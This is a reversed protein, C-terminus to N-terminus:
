FLFNLLQSKGTYGNHGAHRRCKSTGLLLNDLDIIANGGTSWPDLWARRLCIHLFLLTTEHACIWCWTCNTEHNFTFVSFDLFLINRNFIPIDLEVSQWTVKSLDSWNDLSWNKGRYYQIDRQTTSIILSFLAYTTPRFNITVVCVNTVSIYNKPKTKKKQNVEKLNSMLFFFDKKGNM